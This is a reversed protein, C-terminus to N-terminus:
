QCTGYLIRMSIATLLAAVWFGVFVGAPFDWDEKKMPGRDDASRILRRLEQLEAILEPVIWLVERYIHGIPWLRSAKNLDTIASELSSLDEDSVRNETM